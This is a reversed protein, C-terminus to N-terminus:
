PGQIVRLYSTTLFAATETSIWGNSLGFTILSCLANKILQKPDRNSAYSTTDMLMMIMGERYNKYEMVEIKNAPKIFINQKNRLM